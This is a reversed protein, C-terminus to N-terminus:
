FVIFDFIFTEYSALLARFFGWVNVKLVVEASKFTIEAYIRQMFDRLVEECKASTTRAYNIVIKLENLAEAVENITGFDNFIGMQVSPELIEKWKVCRM